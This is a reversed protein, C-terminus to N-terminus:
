LRFQHSVEALAWVGCEMPIVVLEGGSIHVFSPFTKEPQVFEEESVQKLESEVGGERGSM